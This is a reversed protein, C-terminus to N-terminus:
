AAAPHAEIQSPNSPVKTVPQTNNSLESYKTAMAEYTSHEDPLVAHGDLSTGTKRLCEALRTDLKKIIMRQKRATALITERKRKMDLLQRAIPELHKRYEEPMGSLVDELTETKTEAM